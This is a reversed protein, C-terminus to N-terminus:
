VMAVAMTVIRGRGAAVMHPLVAQMSWLTGKPGTDFLVDMAAEDVEALPTVPRFSQANAVLGDVRGWRDVVDAVLTEAAERDRVDVSRTLHEAGIEDLEASARDLREPDRGTVAVRAGVRGLHRAVGLGIGRSGGTVVVVHGTLDVEPDGHGGAGDGM